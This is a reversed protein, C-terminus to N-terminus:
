PNVSIGLERQGRVWVERADESQPRARLENPMDAKLGFSRFKALAYFLEAKDRESWGHFGGKAERELAKKIEEFRKDTDDSRSGGEIENLLMTADKLLAQSTVYALDPVSPPPGFIVEDVDMSGCLHSEDSFSVIEEISDISCMFREEDDADLGRLAGGSFAASRGVLGKHGGRTLMSAMMSPIRGFVKEHEWGIPLLVPIDVRQPKQGPVDKLSVAVFATERALIGYELSLTEREPANKLEGLRMKAWLVAGLRSSEGAVRPIEFSVPQGDVGIGTVRCGELFDRSRIAFISPRSAYLDRVGCALSGETLGEVKIDRVVPGSVFSVIQGAAKDYDEGPYVWYTQGGSERAIDKLFSDNIASSIGVSHIRVGPRPKFRTSETQGDSIIVISREVAPDPNKSFLNMAYDLAKGAETGGAAQIRGFIEKFNSVERPDSLPQLVNPSNDFEIVGVKLPAGGQHAMLKEVVKGSVVRLGDIAPGEMSGSHDLLLIVESSKPQSALGPVVQVLVFEEPSQSEGKLLLTRDVKVQPRESTTRYAVILDRDPRLDSFALTVAEDKEIDRAKIIMDHSPSEM